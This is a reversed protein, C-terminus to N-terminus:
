NVQPTLPKIIVWLLGLPRTSPQPGFEFAPITCMLYISVHYHTHNLFTLSLLLFQMETVLVILANREEKVKM